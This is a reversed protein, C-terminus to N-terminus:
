TFNNIFLVNVSTDLEKTFLGLDVAIIIVIIIFIVHKPHFSLKVSLTFASIKIDLNKM